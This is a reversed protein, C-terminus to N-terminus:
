QRDGGADRSRVRLGRGEYLVAIIRQRQQLRVKGHRQQLPEADREGSSRGNGIEDRIEVVLETHAM